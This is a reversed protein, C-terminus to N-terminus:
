CKRITCARERRSTILDKFGIRPDFALICAIVTKIHYISVEAGLSSFLLQTSAASAGPLCVLGSSYLSGACMCMHRDLVM